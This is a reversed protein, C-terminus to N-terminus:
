GLELWRLEDPNVVAPEQPLRSFDCHRRIEELSAEALEARWGLSKALWGLVRGPPRGSERLRCLRTDGHRKALRRGDPGVVLPVHFFAPPKFGLAEYLALQRETSPLLDAGRVVETVGLANDDVVVALQYGAQEGRAILFDGSWESLKGSRRGFFGDIFVMERGAEVRFRWAAERGESAARAALENAFRDRCVGPYRREGAEEGANPASRFSEIERRACACPYVRGERRLFELAAAYTERRRSQVFLRDSEPAPAASATESSRFPPFSETPGADWDLGLWALDRYVDKAAGPKVKPHDLDELRLILRGGALRARLWAVLFTRANGLHLAGTPAPALRGVYGGGPPTGTGAGAPEPKM